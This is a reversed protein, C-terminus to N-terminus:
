IKIFSNKYAKPWKKKSEKEFIIDFNLDSLIWHDREMEGELQGSGWGSYGLIVLSKEPGKNKAIDFLINYDHSISIDGYNKTTESQYEKSHLVFIKEIEVPGGWFVLIETEYLEENEKSTNLSTDVLLTLPMSGIPKNIVFGWAGDQDNELMAIVTEKFRSDKMKETAILFHDKVSSYFKGKLYNKPSEASTTSNNFLSITIIFTLLLLIRKKMFDNYYCM